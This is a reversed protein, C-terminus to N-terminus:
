AGHIIFPKLPHFLATGGGGGTPDKMDYAGMDSWPPLNVNRAPSTSVLSYDNTAANVYDSEPGGTDTTVLPIIRGAQSWDPVSAPLIGLACDRVRNPGLIGMWSLSALNVAYGSCDTIMNGAFWTPETLPGTVRIGDVWGTITCNRISNGRNTQDTYMGYPGGAGKFLCGYFFSKQDARHGSCAPHSTILRCSDMRLGGATNNTIFFTSGSGTMIFDNEFSVVNDGGLRACGGGGNSGNFLVRCGVIAANNNITVFEGDAYGQLHLSEVVSFQPPKFWGNGGPNYNVLPMNTTILNGGSDRGLYGDGITTKYGRIVLPSTASGNGASGAFDDGGSRSYTGDAKINYRFGISTAGASILSLMQSFSYATGETNGNGSGGALSSVYKETIAM